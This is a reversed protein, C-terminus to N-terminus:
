SRCCSRLPAPPSAARMAFFSKVLRSCRSARSRGGRVTLEPFAITGITSTSGMIAWTAAITPTVILYLRSFQDTPVQALLGAIDARVAETTNGSSTGVERWQAFHKLHLRRRDSTRL